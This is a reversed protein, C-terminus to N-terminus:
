GQLALKRFEQRMKVVFRSINNDDNLTDLYSDCITRDIAPSSDVLQYKDNADVLMQFSFQKEPECPDIQTFIFKMCDGDSKQFELGLALYLKIGKTLDNITQEVKSSLTNHESTLADLRQTERREEEQCELMQGELALKQEKLRGAIQLYRDIEAKQHSKISNNLVRAEELQVENEKLASITCAMEELQQNYSADSSNLWDQKGEIWRNFAQNTKELEFKLNTTLGESM